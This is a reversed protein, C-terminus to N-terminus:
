SVRDLVEALEAENWVADLREVVTGSADTIFLVPEYTLGVAGVAPATTTATDDTYVEAHVFM